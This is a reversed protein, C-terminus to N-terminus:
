QIPPLKVTVSTLRQNLRKLAEESIDIGKEALVIASKSLIATAKREKAIDAVIEVLAIRVQEMAQGYAEDLQRKKGQVGRQVEVVRQEFQQRRQQFAEPDLVGRQQALEQEAARLEREQRSIEEQYTSRQVEIQDRITRAAESARLVGQVDIFAIRSM